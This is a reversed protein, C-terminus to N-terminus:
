VVSPSIGINVTARWLKEDCESLFTFPNFTFFRVMSCVKARCYTCQLSTQGQLTEYSCDALMKFGVLLWNSSDLQILSRFRAMKLSCPCRHVFSRCAARSVNLRWDLWFYEFSERKYPRSSITFWEGLWLARPTEYKWSWQRGTSKSLASIFICSLPGGRFWLLDTVIGSWSTKGPM